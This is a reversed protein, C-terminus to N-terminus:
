LGSIYHGSHHSRLAPMVIRWHIQYGSLSAKRTQQGWEQVHNRLWLQYLHFPHARGLRKFARPQLVM